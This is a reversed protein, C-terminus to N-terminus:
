REINLTLPPFSRSLANRALGYNYEDLYIKADNIAEELLHIHAMVDGYEKATM